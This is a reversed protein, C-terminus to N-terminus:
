ESEQPGHPNSQDECLHFLMDTKCWNQIGPFQATPLSGNDGQIHENILERLDSESWAHNGKRNKLLFFMEAPSIIEGKMADINQVQVLQCFLIYSYIM